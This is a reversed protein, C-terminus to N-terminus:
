PSFNGCHIEDDGMLCQIIGDCIMKLSICYSSQWCLYFYPPCNELQCGDKVNFINVKPFGTSHLDFTCEDASNMIQTAQTDSSKREDSSFLCDYKNDFQHDKPICYTTCQFFSSKKCSKM